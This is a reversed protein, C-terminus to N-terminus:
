FISYIYMYIDINIKTYIYVVCPLSVSLSHNSNLVSATKMACNRWSSSHPERRPEEHRYEGCFSVVHSSDEHVFRRTVAEEM